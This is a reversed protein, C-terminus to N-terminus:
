CRTISGNTIRGCGTYIQSGAALREAAASRVDALMAERSTKILILPDVLPPQMIRVIGIV